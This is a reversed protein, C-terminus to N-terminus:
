ERRERMTEVVREIRDPEWDPHRRRLYTAIAEPTARVPTVEPTDRVRDFAQTFLGRGWAAVAGVLLAGLVAQLLVSERVILLALALPPISATHSYDLLVRDGTAFVNRIFRRNGPRDVMANIFLSPDSVAIVQGAGVQEVAAVPRQTLQEDDDITADGDRDLYAYGSSWALVTANGAHLATGHNLTLRPVGAMLSANASVNTAVPFAPSQSNYREDRLLAGDFRATAGVARLVRDGGDGFDEAVVLTGGTRVFRRIRALERATYPRDPSLIVAVTRTSPSAEYTSTNRVIESEVGVADAQARLDSAGDWQPNYAGFAASSTAAAVLVGVGVVVALAVLIM